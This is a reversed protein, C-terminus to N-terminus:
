AGMDFFSNRLNAAHNQFENHGKEILKELKEKRTEDLEINCTEDLITDIRQYIFNEPEQKAIGKHLLSILNETQQSQGQMFLEIVRKRKNKLVWYHLGWQSKTGAECFIKSGTGISLVRLDELKAGFAKQAEIIAAMTPNNMVVGGDVKNSFVQEEGLLDTYRGSYPNFFTPAAATALAAQFAPIHFDRVYTQHHKTKLVSPKGQLLDYIPICVNTKCDALRPDETLGGYKFTTRILGELASRDHAAYFIQRLLGKKGGFITKAEETYLKLIERAPIGLALAIAIIGGTSTGCILDFHKYIQYRGINRAQLDAEIDALIKAPFIGRIGGGDISLIRFPKKTSM